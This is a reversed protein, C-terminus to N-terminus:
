NCLFLDGSDNLEITGAIFLWDLAFSFYSFSIDNYKKHYINFLMLPAIPPVNGSQFIGLINGGIVYLSKKPTQLNSMIM